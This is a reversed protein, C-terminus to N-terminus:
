ACIILMLGHMSLAGPLHIKIFPLVWEHSDVVEEMIYQNVAATKDM